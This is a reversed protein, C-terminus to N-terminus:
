LYRYHQKSFRWAPESANIEERFRLASFADWSLTFSHAYCLYWAYKLLSAFSLRFLKRELNVPCDNNGLLSLQNEICNKTVFLNGM